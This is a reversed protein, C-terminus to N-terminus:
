SDGEIIEVYKDRVVSSEYTSLWYRYNKEIIEKRKNEDYLLECIAKEMDKVDEFMYPYDPMQYEHFSFEPKDRNIKVVSAIKNRMLDIQTLASSVPFSDIFVDACQFLIDFDPRYPVFILRKKAEANLAFIRDIVAKQESNFESIVIHKLLPEKQLLRKIMEFYESGNEDFFKYSSGGSMTVLEGSNVGLKAKESQKKEDAFYVTDNKNLSQLGVVCCNNFHRKEETIKKTSPMGELIIDAFSMGLCPFHSAHNFYIIKVSTMRKILSLVATGFVDDPHIYVLLTKMGYRIINNAFATVKKRFSWSSIDANIITLYQKLVCVTEPAKKMTETMRTLFLAEEYCDSLSMALDRICKTHGGMDYLATALFAIKHKDSRCKVTKQGAVMESIQADFRRVDFDRNNKVETFFQSLKTRVVCLPIGLLYVRVGKATNKVKCLTIGCCKFKNAHWCFLNM